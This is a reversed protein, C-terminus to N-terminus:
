PTVERPPQALPERRRRPSLRRRHNLWLNANVALLYGGVTVLAVAVRGHPVAFALAVLYAVIVAAAVRARPSCLRETRTRRHRRTTAARLPM